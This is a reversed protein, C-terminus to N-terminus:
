VKRPKRPKPKKAPEDAAVARAIPPAVIALLGMIAGQIKSASDNSGSAFDEMISLYIEDDTVTAGAYRLAAGYAQSLRSHSPGGSRLLVNVAQQGSTGALADEIQAILMLQNNAPVTYEEGGWGLTVDEFGKM